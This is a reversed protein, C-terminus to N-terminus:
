GGVEGKPFKLKVVTMMSLEIDRKAGQWIVIKRELKMREEVLTVLQAKTEARAPDVGRALEKLHKVRQRYDAISVALADIRRERESTPAQKSERHPIDEFPNEDESKSEDLKPDASEELNTLSMVALPPPTTTTEEPPPQATPEPKNQPSSPEGTLEDIPM